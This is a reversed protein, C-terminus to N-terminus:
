STGSPKAASKTAFGMLHWGLRRVLPRPVANFTGVFMTNFAVAKWGKHLRSKVPFREPVIEVSDFPSLLEKFEGISFKQLVPADEHELPVKMLKSMANLWSVRNYVMFIARGGPRLVRYCERVLRQPDATYQIVGHGYVVDFTNNPYPLAEANATRLDHATLGHLHLNKRALEIATESLDVGTVIAGGRAFRVLDTGIGCGVELLTQGRFGAFDVLRPLYHLKDFRYEDLDNFFELSGVPRDTMELDHIRANWYHEIADIM